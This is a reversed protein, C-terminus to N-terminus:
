EDASDVNIGFPAKAIQQVSVDAALITEIKGEPTRVMLGGIDSLGCTVASRRGDGESIWVRVGEWMSSHGKWRELLERHNGDEFVRYCEQFKRLFEVLVQRRPVMTDAMEDLCVATSELSKPVSGKRVNIGLGVVAAPSDGETMTELLIGACKRGSILVDNPWKLDVNLAHPIRHLPHLGKVTEVLAVSAVHTLLPWFKLPQRPRLVLSVSLGKGAISVWSRGKRGKGATQQEAIVLTGAPAGNRAMELAESNTSDIRLFAHVRLGDWAVAPTEKQIWYPIMQDSDFQLSVRTGAYKLRVGWEKCLELERQFWEAPNIPLGNEGVHGLDILISPIKLNPM